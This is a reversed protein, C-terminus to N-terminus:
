KIAGELEKRAISLEPIKQQGKIQGDVIVERVQTEGTDPDRGMVAKSTRAKFGMLKSKVCYVIDTQNRYEDTTLKLELTVTRPKKWDTNTDMLNILAKTLEVNFQEQLAGSGIDSLLLKAM